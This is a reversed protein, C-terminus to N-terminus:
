VCASEATPGAVRFTLSARCKPVSMCGVTCATYIALFTSTIRWSHDGGALLVMVLAGLLSHCPRYSIVIWYQAQFYYMALGAGSVLGLFGEESGDIKVRRRRWFEVHGLVRWSNEKSM